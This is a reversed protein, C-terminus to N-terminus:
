PELAGGTARLGGKWTGMDAQMRTALVQFPEGPQDTQIIDADDVFSYGVLHLQKGKISINCMFGFGEDRMM